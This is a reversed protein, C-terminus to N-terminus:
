RVTLVKGDYIIAASKANGNPLSVNSFSLVDPTTASYSKDSIDGTGINTVEFVQISPTAWTSGKKALEVLQDRTVSIEAKKDFSIRQKADAQSDTWWNQAFFLALGAVVAGVIGSIASKM